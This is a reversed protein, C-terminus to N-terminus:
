CGAQRMKDRRIMSMTNKLNVDPITNINADTYTADKKSTMDTVTISFKCDMTGIEKITYTVAGVKFTGGIDYGEKLYQKSTASQHMELIRNKEETTISSLINKM